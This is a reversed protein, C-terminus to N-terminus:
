NYSKTTFGKGVFKLNAKSIQKKVKGKCKRCPPTKDKVLEEFIYGCKTCKYDFLPSM